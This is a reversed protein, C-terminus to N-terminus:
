RACVIAQSDGFVQFPGCASAQQLVRTWLNIAASTHASYSSDPIFSCVILLIGQLICHQALEATYAFNRDAVKHQDIAIVQTFHGTRCVALLM